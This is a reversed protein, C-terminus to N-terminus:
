MPTNQAHVQQYVQGLKDKLGKYHNYEDMQHQADATRGARRYQVSLRYHAVINTPDDQIASELLSIAEKTQGQSILAIALDTQADSDRPQLALAKNYDEQATKFDSRAAAAEGLRYWAKEDFQNEQVAAKYEDEAQANLKPDPSSRLQEALEFHVGPLHPNLKIAERYKVVAKEHEGQRALEGGIIMRLEASDPAALVMNLMSQELLQSSIEYAAFIIQTDEPMEEELTATVAMAKAFQGSSSDLEILELGAQKQFKKDSLNPFAQELDSQAATLDGTRKEAIGLLGRIRWLDPQIELAARLEPIADAFSGDFFLLVGLNAHANLNKPDLSLIDRLLPIAALPKQEQLYTQAQRALADVKQSVDPSSQALLALSHV